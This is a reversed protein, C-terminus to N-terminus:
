PTLNSGKVQVPSTNKNLATLGKVLLKYFIGSDSKM